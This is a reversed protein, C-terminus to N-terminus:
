IKRVTWIKTTYILKIYSDDPFEKRVRESIKNIILQGTKSDWVWFKNKVSKWAAIYGQSSQNVEKAIAIYHLDNFLRSSLIVDAQGERRVGREYVPIISKIIEEIDKQLPDSDINRHNWMCSFFGKEKLVRHAEQLTLARDATNFSSGMAFLNISGDQLTTNEGTGIVWSVKQGDTVKIGLKMMARNPEVAVCTLGRNLFLKTLNGTGAGVDAVIYDFEKSAKVYSILEDIAEEAYNPRAWYYASQYTYDWEKKLETNM